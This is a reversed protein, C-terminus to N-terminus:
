CVIKRTRLAEMVSQLRELCDMNGEQEFSTGVQLDTSCHGIM